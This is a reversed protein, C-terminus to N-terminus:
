DRLTILNAYSYFTIEQLGETNTPKFIKTKLYGGYVRFWDEKAEQTLLSM